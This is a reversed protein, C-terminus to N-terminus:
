HPRIRLLMNGMEFTKNSNTVMAFITGESDGGNIEQNLDTRKWTGPVNNKVLNEPTHDTKMSALPTPPTPEAGANYTWGTAKHHILQLDPDADNAGGRWTAELGLVIFDSNQNDWYKCFGWNCDKATGSIHDISVQGIWKKPTEAYDNTTAPHTFVIDQTDAATRNGEDDVSTGSVRITLDDDTNAGLVLFLHAAYSTNAIGLTETATFDSNGSNFIYFGGFYNTGTGAVQSLFGWSKESAPSGRYIEQWESATADYNMLIYDHNRMTYSGGHLHLGNGNDLKVTNTDSGGEILVIQGNTGAAIQPDATIDVPGGDGSVHMHSATVTIGGAATISVEDPELITEGTLTIGDFTPSAGTHIDQPTSLTITGDGDDTVIIQNTTGAIWSSLTAVSDAAKAGDTAMLRSATLGSLTLGTFEPSAGTHIDQPTSITITGDGDDTITIQNATGAVWATLASVSVLVKSADTSVLRSATLDSLTLSAFTVDADTEVSQDLDFGDVQDANLNTVNDTSAVVFPPAGSAVTSALQGTMTDGETKVFNGSATALLKFLDGDLRFALYRTTGDDVVVLETNRLPKVSPDASFRRMSRPAFNEELEDRRREDEPHRQRTIRGNGM